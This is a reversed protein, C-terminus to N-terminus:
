GLLSFIEGSDVSLNLGNLAQVGNKYQKVLNQVQIVPMKVCGRQNPFSNTSHSDRGM